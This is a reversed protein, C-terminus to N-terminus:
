ASGGPKRFAFNLFFPSTVWAYDGEQAARISQILDDIARESAVGAEVARARAAALTSAHLELALAPEMVTFFGEATTVELGATRAARALDDV